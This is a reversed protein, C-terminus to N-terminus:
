PNRLHHLSAAALLVERLFWAEPIILALMPRAAVYAPQVATHRLWRYQLHEPRLLPRRTTSQWAAPRTHHTATPTTATPAAAAAAPILATAHHAQPTAATAAAPGTPATATTGPPLATAHNSATQATATPAAAPDFPTLATVHLAQPTAVTTAAPGTVPTTATVDHQRTAEIRRDRDRDALEKHKLARVDDSAWLIDVDQQETAAVAPRM